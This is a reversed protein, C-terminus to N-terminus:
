GNKQCRLIGRDETVLKRICGSLMEEMQKLNIDSHEVERSFRYVLEIVDEMDLMKENRLWRTKLLEELLESCLLAFETKALIQGDYVAGCFYTDIFYVLLQEKQIKWPFDYEEIWNEFEESIKQYEQATHQLYLRQETELLIFEWDKKLLELKHLKRFNEKIFSFWRDPETKRKQIQKEVFAQASPKQYKELVEGCSFLEQRNVRRQIDHSLGYVLGSRVMLPLSRNQLIGRIVERADLLESYLFPDFEEYEEDGEKEVTLLKVPKTRNMLIRAAEPCSMSLTIERVGEFEEVHRPYLRCTRCLSDAGLATYMDCLNNENLFACRKEKDQRFTEKRWDVGKRIRKRFSGKVARYKRLSKRDAVIQWGACCTDECKDAICHFERYYEPVSYLM